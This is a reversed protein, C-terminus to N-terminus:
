HVTLLKNLFFVKWKGQWKLDFQPNPKSNPVNSIFFRNSNIKRDISNFRFFTNCFVIQENKISACFFLFGHISGTGTLM